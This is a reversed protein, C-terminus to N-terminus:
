GCNIRRDTRFSSVVKTVDHLSESYMSGTKKISAHHPHFPFSDIGIANVM